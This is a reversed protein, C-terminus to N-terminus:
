RKRVSAEVPVRLIEAAKKLAKETIEKNKELFADKFAVFAHLANTKPDEGKTPPPMTFTKVWENLEDSFARVLGATLNIKMKDLQQQTVDKKEQQKEQLKQKMQQLKEPIPKKEPAAAPPQALKYVHGNVRIFRPLKKTAM